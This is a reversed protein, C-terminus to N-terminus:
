PGNPSPPELLLPIRVLVPEPHSDEQVSPDGLQGANNRGWCLVQGGECGACTFGSGAAIRQVRDACAVVPTPNCNSQVTVSPGLQGYDNGGWCLLGLNDDLVCTHDFGASLASVSLFPNQSGGDVVQIATEPNTGGTDGCGLQQNESRGWCRVSQDTLAVCGHGNGVALAQVGTGVPLGQISVPSCSPEQGAWYADGWCLVEESMGPPVACALSGGVSFPPGGSLIANFYDCNNCNGACSVVRRANDGACLIWNAAAACTVDGGAAVDYVDPLDVQTVPQSADGTGMGFQGEDNAGWCYVTHGTGDWLLACTHRDGCSLKQVEVNSLPLGQVRVPTASTRGQTQAGLQGSGNDGWCFVDNEWKMTDFYAACAHLSGACLATLEWHPVCDIPCDEQNEWADCSGDGCTCQSTDFSCDSCRIPGAYGTLSECTENNLNTGDCEEGPEVTGNGCQSLQGPICELGDPVFGPECDCFAGQKGVRCTGHGSCDVGACLDEAVCSLGQPVYGPDCKCFAGQDGVKCTGHGSCDVGACLDGDHDCGGAPLICLSLLALSRARVSQAM